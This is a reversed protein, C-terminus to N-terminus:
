FVMLLFVNISFLIEFFNNMNSFFFVKTSFLKKLYFIMWKKRKFFDNLNWCLYFDNMKFFLNISFLNELFIMWKKGRFFIWIYIRLYCLMVFTFVKDLETRVSAKKWSGRSKCHFNIISVWIGINEFRQKTSFYKCENHNM